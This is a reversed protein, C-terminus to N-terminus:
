NGFNVIADGAGVIASSADSFTGSAQSELREIKGLAQASLLIAGITLFISICMLISLGVCMFHVQKWTALPQPYNHHPMTSSNDGTNLTTETNGREIDRTPTSPRTSKPAKNYNDM